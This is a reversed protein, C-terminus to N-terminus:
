MSHPATVVVDLDDLAVGTALPRTGLLDAAYNANAQSHVTIAEIM